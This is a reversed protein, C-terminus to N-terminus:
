AGLLKRVAAGAKAMDLAGAHKQKLVGMVKGTDKVSAAGTEAIAAKVAAEIGADDLQKPLFREIVAIEGREKAALEPRNGKEYLAISENRQKIMGQLMQRIEDDGIGATNGKARADVDKNKMGAVILRLADTSAQDRAKMATKLAESIDDRLM